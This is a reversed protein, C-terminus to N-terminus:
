RQEKDADEFRFCLSIIAIEKETSVLLGRVKHLNLAHEVRGAGRYSKSVHHKLM